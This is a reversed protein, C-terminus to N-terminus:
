FKWSVTLWPVQDRVDTTWSIRVNGKDGFAGFKISNTALEHIALTVIEAAHPALAVYPGEVLCQDPDVANALLEEDLLEALDLKTNPLRALMSQTRGIAQLRGSLHDVYDDVNMHSPASLRAVSRVKSLLNRVQHQADTTQTKQEADDIKPTNAVVHKSTINWVQVLVADGGASSLPSLEIRLLLRKRGFQRIFTEAKGVTLVRELDAQWKNAIDPHVDHLVRGALDEVKFMRRMAPNCAIYRWDRSGGRSRQVPELMCAAQRMSEFAGAFVDQRRKRNDITM